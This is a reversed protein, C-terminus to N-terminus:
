EKAVRQREVVEPGSGPSNGPKQPEMTKRWAGMGRFPDPLWCCCCSHTIHPSKFTNDMIMPCCPPLVFYGQKKHKHSLPAFYSWHIFLFHGLLFTNTSPSFFMFFMGNTFLAFTSKGGNCMLNPNIFCNTLAKCLSPSHKLYRQVFNGLSVYSFILAPIKSPGWNRSNSFFGANIEVMFFSFHFAHFANESTTLFKRPFMLDGSKQSSISLKNCANGSKRQLM